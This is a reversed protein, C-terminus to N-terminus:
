FNAKSSLRVIFMILFVVISITPLSTLIYLPVAAYRARGFSNAFHYLVVQGRDSSARDPLVFDGHIRVCDMLGLKFDVRIYAFRLDVSM